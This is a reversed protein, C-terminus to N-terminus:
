PNISNYRISYLSFSLEEVLFRSFKNVSCNTSVNKHCSTSLDQSLQNVSKKHCKQEMAGSLAAYQTNVCNRSRSFAILNM